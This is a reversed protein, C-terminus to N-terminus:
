VWAQLSAARGQSPMGPRPGDSLSSSTISSSPRRLHYWHFVLRFAAHMYKLTVFYICIYMRIGARQTLRIQFEESRATPCHWPIAIVM